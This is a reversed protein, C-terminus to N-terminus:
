NQKKIFLEYHEKLVNHITKKLIQNESIEYEFDNTEYDATERDEIDKPFYGLDLDSQVMKNVIEKSPGLYENKGYEKGYETYNQEWDVDFSKYEPIVINDPTVTQQNFGELNYKLISYLLWLFESSINNIGIIPGKRLFDFFFDEINEDMDSDEFEGNKISDYIKSWEDPSTKILFNIQKTLLQYDM